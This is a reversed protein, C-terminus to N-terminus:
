CKLIDLFKTFVDEDKDISFRWCFEDLHSQIHKLPVGRKKRLINTKSELWSREIQQTHCGNESNVYSEQHNVTKHHYGLRQLQRYAPWEDSYITSGISVERKIIELLTDANRRQVYFYRVDKGKILGFVWPGDIRRGFNRNNRVNEPSLEEPSSDGALLRGKNYKRRGAFRSEDIQIPENETGIMQGKDELASSCISRFCRFWSIATPSTITTYKVVDSVSMEISWLYMTETIQLLSMNTKNKFSLKTKSFLKCGNKVSFRAQCGRSKCRWVTSVCGRQKRTTLLVDSGCKDCGELNPIVSRAILYKSTTEENQLVQCYFERLLMAIPEWNRFILM